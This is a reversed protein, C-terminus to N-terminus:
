EGQPRHIAERHKVRHFLCGFEGNDNRLANADMPASKLMLTLPEGVTCPDVVCARKKPATRNLLAADEVLISLETPHRSDVSGYFHQLDVNM